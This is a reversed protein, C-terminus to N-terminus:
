LEITNFLLNFSRISLFKNMFYKCKYYNYYYCEFKTPKDGFELKKKIEEEYYILLIDSVIHM